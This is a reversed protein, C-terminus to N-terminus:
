SLFKGQDSQPDTGHQLQQCAGPRTELDFVPADEPNNLTRCSCCCPVDLNCLIINIFPHFVDNTTFRSEPLSVNDEVELVDVGKLVDAEPVFVDTQEPRGRRKFPKLKQGKASQLLQFFRNENVFITM